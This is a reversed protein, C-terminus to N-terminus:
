VLDTKNKKIINIQISQQKKLRLVQIVVKDIKERVIQLVM